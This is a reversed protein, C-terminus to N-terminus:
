DTCRLGRLRIDELGQAGPITVCRGFGRFGLNRSRLALGQVWLAGSAPSDRAETAPPM